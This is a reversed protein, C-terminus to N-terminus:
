QKDFLKMQLLKVLSTYDKANQKTHKMKAIIYLFFKEFKFQQWENKRKQTCTNKEERCSITLFAYRQM